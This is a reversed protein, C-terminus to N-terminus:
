PRNEDADAVSFILEYEPYNLLFFGELNESLGPDLGKLPKLITIPPFPGSALPLKKERRYHNLSLWTGWLVTILSFGWIVLLAYGLYIM